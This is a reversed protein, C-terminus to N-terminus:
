IPTSHEQVQEMLWARGYKFNAFSTEWSKAETRSFKQATSSTPSWYSLPLLFRFLSILFHLRVEVYLDELKNDAGYITKLKVLGEQVMFKTIGLSHPHGNSM